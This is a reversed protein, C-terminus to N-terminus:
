ADERKGIKVRVEEAEEAMGENELIGALEEFDEREIDGDKFAEYLDEAFGEHGHYSLWYFSKLEGDDNLMAVQYESNTFFVNGSNQNMMLVVEDDYFTSPLGQDEMAEILERAMSLERYGFNSLDTTTSM